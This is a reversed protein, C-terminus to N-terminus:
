GPTPSRRRAAPQARELLRDLALGNVREAVRLRDCAERVADGREIVEPVLLALSAMGEASWPVLTAGHGLEAALAAVKPSYGVLVAPRGALAAAVAAHYRMAVVVRASAVEDLVTELTPLVVEAGHRSRAVVSHLLSADRVPDFAILRVTLGTADVLQDVASAAAAVFWEPSSARHWGVPLRGGGGGWTRLCLAIADRPATDRAPLGFALDAGVASRVGLDGLVRASPSDRVTVDLDRLAARVLRRSSRRRLPGAGLGVGAAPTRRAAAVALPSLHYPLNAISTEDQLLGGGGLVLADLGSLGGVVARSRRAADAGHDRLTAEPAVSLAVAEAGRETLKARLSAYVLEDGLNTSGIWAAVGVRM